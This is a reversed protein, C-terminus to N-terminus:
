VVTTLVLHKQATGASFMPAIMRAQALPDSREDSTLGVHTKAASADFPRSAIWCNRAGSNCQNHTADGLQETPRADANSGEKVVHGATQRAWYVTV